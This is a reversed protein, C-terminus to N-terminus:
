VATWGGDVPLVAGTVFSSADSALFLAATTIEEPTAVRGLPTKRKVLEQAKETGLWDSTMETDVWGPAIANVRVGDRGWQGALERTLNMCGAKSAAYAAQPLPRAIGRIGTVSAINIISGGRGAAIMARGADRCVIFTAILNIDITRRFDATSENIALIINAIGANNVVVDLHGAEALVRDVLRECQEEDALDAPLPTIGEHMEALEALREARRAVAYVRAGARAFGLAIAHGIGSSAGTVLAINDVLRFKDFLADAESM